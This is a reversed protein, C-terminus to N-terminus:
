GQAVAIRSSYPAAYVGEIELVDQSLFAWALAFQDDIENFTDTDIVVRVPGGPPELMRRMRDEPITPFKKMM